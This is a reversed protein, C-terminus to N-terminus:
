IMHRRAYQAAEVRNKLHLKELLRHVYTRVSSESIFLRRAIDTNNFGEGLSALVERERTSLAPGNSKARLEEALMKAIYPSVISEGSATHIVADVVDTINSSKLLYGEAGLRLAQFLDSEKDSATLVLIKATPLREKINVTAELGTANPMFIDMLIVDPELELAKHVAEVGDCAEGVIQIEPRDKLIQTIGFRVVSHDDVILVKIKEM